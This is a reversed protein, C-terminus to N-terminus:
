PPLQAYTVGSEQKLNDVLPSLVCVTSLVRNPLDRDWCFHFSSSFFMAQTRHTRGLLLVTPLQCSACILYM